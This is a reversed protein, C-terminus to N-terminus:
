GTRDLALGAAERVRRHEDELLSALREPALQELRPWIPPAAAPAEPVAEKAGDMIASIEEPSLTENLISTMTDGSDLLGAGEAFENEFEAVIKELEGQPITRLTRASEILSSAGEPQAYTAGAAVLMRGDGLAHWDHFSGHSHPEAEWGAVDWDETTRAIPRTSLAAPGVFRSECVSGASFRPM